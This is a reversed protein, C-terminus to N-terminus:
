RGQQQRRDHQIAPRNLVQNSIAKQQTNRRNAEFRQAVEPRLQLPVMQGRHPPREGAHGEIRTFPHRVQHRKAAELNDFSRVVRGQAAGNPACKEIYVLAFWKTQGPPRDEARQTPTSRAKQQKPAADRKLSRPGRKAAQQIRTTLGLPQNIVRRINRLEEAPGTALRVRRGDPNIRNLGYVKRITGARHDRVRYLSISVQGHRVERVFEATPRLPLRGMARANVRATRRAEISAVKRGMADAVSAAKTAVKTAVAQCKRALRAIAEFPKEIM